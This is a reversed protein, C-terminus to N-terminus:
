IPVYQLYFTVQNFVGKLLGTRFDMNLPVSQVIIIKNYNGGVKISELCEDRVHMAQERTLEEDGFKALFPALFDLELDMESKERERKAREQAERGEKLGSLLIGKHSM